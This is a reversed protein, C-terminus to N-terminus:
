QRVTITQEREYSQKATVDRLALKVTYQGPKLGSVDITTGVGFHGTVGKLPSAEATEWPAEIQKGNGQIVVRMSLSPGKAQDLGPKRLEAFLWIEDAARFNRDPKPIVKTGGFAFPEFPNQAQAMNHIDGSVILRSVGKAPDIVPDGGLAARGLGIIEGRIAVGFTAVTATEDLFLTRELFSDGKSDLVVASEEFDTVTTGKADRVEGFETVRSGPKVGNRPFGIQVAVFPTGNATVFRDWTITLNFLPDPEARRLADRFEGTHLATHGADIFKKARVEDTYQNYYLVTKAKDWRDGTKPPNGSPTQASVVLTLALSLPWLRM